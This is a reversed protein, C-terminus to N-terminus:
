GCVARSRYSSVFRPFTVSAIDLLLLVAHYDFLWVGENATQVIMRYREVSVHLIEEYRKRETVDRLAMIAGSIQGQEDAM